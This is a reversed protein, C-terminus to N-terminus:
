FLRRYDDRIVLFATCNCGLVSAYFTSSLSKKPPRRTKSPLLGMSHRVLM